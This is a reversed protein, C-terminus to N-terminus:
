KPVELLLEVAVSLGDASYTFLRATVELVLTPGLQAWRVLDGAQPVQSMNQVLPLLPADDPAMSGLAVCFVKRATPSLSYSLSVVIPESM